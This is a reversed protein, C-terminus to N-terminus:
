TRRHPWLRKIWSDSMGQLRMTAMHATITMEDIQVIVRHAWDEAFRDVHTVGLQQLQEDSLQRVIYQMRLESRYLERSLFETRKVERRYFRFM